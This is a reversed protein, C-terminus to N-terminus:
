RRGMRPLIRFKTKGKNYTNSPPTYDPNDVTPPPPENPRDPKKAINRQKLRLLILSNAQVNDAETQSAGPQLNDNGQAMATAATLVTAVTLAMAMLTLTRKNIGTAM